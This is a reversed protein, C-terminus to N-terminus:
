IIIIDAYLQAPVWSMTGEEFYLYTVNRFLGPTSYHIWTKTDKDVRLNPDTYRADFYVLCETGKEVDCEPHQIYTIGEKKLYVLEVKPSPPETLLRQERRQRRQVEVQIRERLTHQNMRFQVPNYHSMKQHTTM